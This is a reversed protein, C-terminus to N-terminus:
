LRLDDLRKKLDGSIRIFSKRCWREHTAYLLPPFRCRPSKFGQPCLGISKSDMVKAVRDCQGSCFDPLCAWLYVASNTWFDCSKRTWQLKKLRELSHATDLVSRALPATNSSHPSLDWLQRTSLTTYVKSEMDSRVPNQFVGLSKM